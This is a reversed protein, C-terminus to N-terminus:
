WFHYTFERWFPWPYRFFANKAWSLFILPNANKISIMRVVKIADVISTHIAAFPDSSPKVQRLCQLYLSKSDSRVKDDEEAIAYPKSTVPWHM